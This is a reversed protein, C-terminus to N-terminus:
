TRSRIARRRAERGASDMLRDVLLQLTTGEAASFNTRKVTIAGVVGTAGQPGQLGPAGTAGTAGAPLQGAAFDARLLSGDRVKAATVANAAPDTNRVAKSKIQASGVSNRPLKIAAYSTGGLAIMVGITSMVNAYSLRRRATQIM